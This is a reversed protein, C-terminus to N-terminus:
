LTRMWAEIKDCYYKKYGEENPHWGDGDKTYLSRLTELGSGTRSLGFPPVLLNLNCYPVGWKECCEVAAKYYTGTETDSRFRATMKHVIIFGYKRGAYRQILQMCLNEMAGYFTTTDYSLNYDQSLQGLPVQLSADNVGGEVIAYDADADMSTITDSIWHRPYDGSRTGSTITAGVRAINNVTMGNREGIIKAYGGNYGAGYCISDGNVSLKKGFLINNTVISGAIDSVQELQKENLGYENNLVPNYPVYNEPYNEAECFMFESVPLGGLNVIINGSKPPTIILFGGDLVGEYASEVNGSGDVFAYKVNAGLYSAHFPMKYSKGKKVALPHSLTYRDASGIVGARDMFSNARVRSDDKNFMNVNVFRSEAEALKEGTIKADAAMGSLSLTKDIEVNDSGNKVNFTSYTDDTYAITYTDVLGNTGTKEISVIGRGPEPNIGNVLAILQEIQSPAPDTTELGSKDIISATVEVFGPTSAYGDAVVGVSFVGKKLCWLPIKVCDNEDIVVSEQKGDREFVAFMAIQKEAEDIEFHLGYCDNDGVLLKNEGKEIKLFKDKLKLNITQM